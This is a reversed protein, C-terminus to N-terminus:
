RKRNVPFTSSFKQYSDQPNHSGASLTCNTGTARWLLGRGDSPTEAAPRKALPMEPRNNNDAIQQGPGQKPQCSQARALGQKSPHAWKNSAADKM